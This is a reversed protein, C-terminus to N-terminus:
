PAVVDEIRVSVSALQGALGLRGAEQAVASRVRRGTAQLDQPLAVVHLRLEYGGGPRAASVVGPLDHTRRVGAPGADMAAVGPDSLAADHALRALSVRPSATM